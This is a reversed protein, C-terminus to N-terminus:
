AKNEESKSTHEEKFRKYKIIKNKENKLYVTHKVGEYSENVDYYVVERILRHVGSSTTVIELHVGIDLSDHVLTNISQNSLDIGPMM